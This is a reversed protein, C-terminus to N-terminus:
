RWLVGNESCHPVSVTGWQLSNLHSALRFRDELPPHSPPSVSIV